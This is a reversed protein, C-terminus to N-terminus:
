LLEIHALTIDIRNESLISVIEDMELPDKIGNLFHNAKLLNPENFIKLLISQGKLRVKLLELIDKSINTSDIRHCLCYM